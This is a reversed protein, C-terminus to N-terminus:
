GPLFNMATADARLATGCLHPDHDLAGEGIILHIGADVALPLPKTLQRQLCQPPPIRRCPLWASLRPLCAHGPLAGLAVPLVPDVADAVMAALWQAATVLYQDSIVSECSRRAFGALYGHVAPCASSLMM